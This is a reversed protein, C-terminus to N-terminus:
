DPLSRKKLASLDDSQLPEGASKHERSHASPECLGVSPSLHLAEQAQGAGCAIKSGAVVDAWGCLDSDEPDALAPPFEDRHAPANDRKM